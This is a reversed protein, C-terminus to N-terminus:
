TLGLARSYPACVAHMEDVWGRYNGINRCWQPASTGHVARRGWGWLRGSSHAGLRYEWYRAGMYTRQRCQWGAAMVQSEDVRAMSLWMVRTQRRSTFGGKRGDSSSVSSSAPAYLAAYQAIEEMYDGLSVAYAEADSCVQLDHM